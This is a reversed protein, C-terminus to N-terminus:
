LNKIKAMVASKSIYQEMIIQNNKTGINDHPVKMTNIEKLVDNYSKNLREIEKWMISRYYNKDM